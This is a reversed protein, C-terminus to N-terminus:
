IISRTLQFSQQTDSKDLITNSDSLVFRISILTDPLVSPLENVGFLSIALSQKAMAVSCAWPCINLYNRSNVIVDIENSIVIDVVKVFIDDCSSEARVRILDGISLSEWKKTTKRVLYTMWGFQTPRFSRDSMLVSHM